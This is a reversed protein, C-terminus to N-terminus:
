NKEEVYNIYNDFNTKDLERTPKDFTGGIKKFYGSKKWFPENASILKISSIDKDKALKVINCVLNKGLGNFRKQKSTFIEKPSTQIYNIDFRTNQSNDEKTVKALALTDGQKNELGYFHSNSIKQSLVFRLYCEEFSNAINHIYKSKEGWETRLESIQWRDNKNNTEYEVFNGCEFSNDAKKIQVNNLLIKGFSCNCMFVPAKM